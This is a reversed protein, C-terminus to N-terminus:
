RKYSPAVLPPLWVEVRGPRLAQTRDAAFAIPKLRLRYGRDALTDQVIEVITLAASRDQPQFRVDGATPQDSSVLQPKDARFGRATLARAVDEALKVDMPSQYHVYTTTQRNPIAKQGVLKDYRAQAARVELPDTSLKIVQQFDTVAAKTDGAAQYLDARAFYTSSAAPALQLAVTYDAIAGKLDDTAARAAARSAYAQANKQDGAIAVDLDALAERPQNKALWAAGRAARVDPRNPALALAQNFDDM